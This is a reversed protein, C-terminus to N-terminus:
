LKRGFVIQWYILFFDLGTGIASPFLGTNEDRFSWVSDVANRALLSYTENGTLESLTGFELVLSTASAVTTDSRNSTHIPGGDL